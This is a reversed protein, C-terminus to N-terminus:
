LILFTEKPAGTLVEVGDPQLVVDDEIRVGGLGSIYVGPELTVVMATLLEDASKKSLRPREHVELGLGHGLSHVFRDGLGAADIPQRALADAERGTMGPVIGEIAARQADRVVEYARRLEPGPDGLAVTRTMDSRYGAVVAGFDILVIEGPALRRAGPRAHPLASREGFAVITEFAPGDSGHAVLLRELELAVEREVAGPRIAALIDAFARDAIQAARRIADLEAPSKIARLEEAWGRVGELAPGEAERWEEWAAVSLHESEFLVRDDGREALRRRAAVLAPDSAIEVDVAPDAEQRVQTDYRGDTILFDAGEAGIALVGASGSFGTLYRLNALGTVLLAAADADRVRARLRERREPPADPPALATEAM